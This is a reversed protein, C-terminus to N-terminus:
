SNFFWQWNYGYGILPIKLSISIRHKGIESILTNYCPISYGYTIGLAMFLTIGIEPMIRLDWIESKNYFVTIIKLSIFTNYDLSYGFRFGCINDKSFNNEFGIIPGHEFLGIPTYNHINFLLNLNFLFQNQYATEFIGSLSYKFMGEEYKTPFESDQPFVMVTFFTFLLILIFVQKM